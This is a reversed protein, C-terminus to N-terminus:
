EEPDPPGFLHDPIPEDYRISNDMKPRDNGGLANFRESLIDQKNNSQSAQQQEQAVEKWKFYALWETVEMSSMESLM